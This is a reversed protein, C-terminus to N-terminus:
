VSFRGCRANTWSYTHHPLPIVHIGASAFINGAPIIMSFPQLITDLVCGRWIMSTQKWGRFILSSPGKVMIMNPLWPSIWWPPPRSPLKGLSLWMLLGYHSLATVLCTTDQTIPSGWKKEFPFARETKMVGGVRIVWCSSAILELVNEPTELPKKKQFHLIDGVSNSMYSVPQLPTSM